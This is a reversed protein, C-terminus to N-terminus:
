TTQEDRRHLRKLKMILLAKAPNRILKLWSMLRLGVSVFLTELFVRDACMRWRDIHHGVEYGHRNLVNGAVFEFVLRSGRPLEAKWAASRESVPRDAEVLRHIAREPTPVRKLFTARSSSEVNLECGFFERVRQIEAAEKTVLDEFRVTHARDPNTAAFADFGAVLRSWQRAATLPDRAMREGNGYPRVALLKSNLVARGDRLVHLFKANPIEHAIQNIMFGDAGDKVVWVKATPKVRAFYTRLVADVITALTRQPRCDFYYALDDADLHLSRFRGPSGCLVNLVQEGSSAQLL